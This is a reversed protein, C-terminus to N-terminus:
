DPAARLFYVAVVDRDRFRLRLLGDSKSFPLALVFVHRQSARTVVRAKGASHVRLALERVGDDGTDYGFKVTGELHLKTLTSRAHEQVDRRCKPSNRPSGSWRATVARITAAGAYFQVVNAKDFSARMGCVVLGLWTAQFVQMAGVFTAKYRDGHFMECERRLLVAYRRGPRTARAAGGRRKPARGDLRLCLVTSGGRPPASQAFGDVEPVSPLVGWPPQVDPEALREFVELVVGDAAADLVVQVQSFRGFCEVPRLNPAAPFANRRRENGRPGPAGRRKFLAARRRPAVLPPGRPRVRGRRPRRARPPHGGAGSGIEDNPRRAAGRGTVSAAFRADYLQLLPWAPQHVSAIATRLEGHASRKVLQVTAISTFADLGATPEDLALVPRASLFEVAASVRRLQGGSLADVNRERVRELGLASLVRAVRRDAAAAPADLRLRAAFRLTTEVGLGGFLCDDQPM